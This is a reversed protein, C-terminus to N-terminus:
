YSAGMLEGRDGGIMVNRLGGRLERSVTAV